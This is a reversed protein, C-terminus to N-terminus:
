ISVQWLNQSEVYLATRPNSRGNRERLVHEANAMVSVRMVIGDIIWGEEIGFVMSEEFVCYQYGFRVELVFGPVGFGVYM